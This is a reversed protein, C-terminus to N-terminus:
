LHYIYDYANEIEAENMKTIYEANFYDHRIFKNLQQFLQTELKAHRM